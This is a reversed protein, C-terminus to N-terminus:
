LNIQLADFLLLEEAVLVTGPQLATLQNSTEKGEARLNRLVQHGLDRVDASRERMFEQKLGRLRTEMERVEELVAQEAGVLDECVRLKCRQSFSPSKLMTLRMEVLAIEDDTRQGEFQERIRDLETISETLARDFRDVESEVEDQSINPEGLASDHEPRYVVAIGDGLGPSVGRGQLTTGVMRTFSRFHEIEEDKTRITKKMRRTETAKRAVLHVYLALALVEIAANLSELPLFEPMGWLVEFSVRVVPLLISLTYALTKRGIWAALGIPVVYLLPFHIDRGTAFDVSLTILAILICIASPNKETIQEIFRLVRTM